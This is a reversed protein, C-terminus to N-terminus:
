HFEIYRDANAVMKEVIDDLDIEHQSIVDYLHLIGGQERSALVIIDKESLYYRELFDCEHDLCFTALPWKDNLIGLQHSVPKRNKMLRSLIFQDEKRDPRLIKINTPQSSIFSTDLTFGKESVKKFGLKQYFNIVRDNAYLFMFD